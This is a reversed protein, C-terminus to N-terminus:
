PQREELCEKPQGKTKLQEQYKKALNELEAKTFLKEKREEKNNEVTTQSVKVPYVDDPANAAVHNLLDAGLEYFMNDDKAILTELPSMKGDSTTIYMRYAPKNADTTDDKSLTTFKRGIKENTTSISSNNQSLYNNKSSEIYMKKNVFKNLQESNVNDKGEIIPRINQEFYPADYGAQHTNLYQRIKYMKIKRKEQERLTLERPEYRRLHMKQMVRQAWNPRIPRYGKRFRKGLNRNTSLERDIHRMLSRQYNKYSEKFFLRRIGNVATRGARKVAKKYFVIGLIGGVLMAAVPAAWLLFLSIGGPM